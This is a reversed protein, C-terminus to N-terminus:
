VRPYVGAHWQDPLFFTTLRNAADILWALAIDPDQDDPATVVIGRRPHDGLVRWGDPLLLGDERLRAVARHGGGHQLGVSLPEATGNRKRIGPVWSAFPVAPGRTTFLRTLSASPVPIDEPDVDPQLNIWGDRDRLQQRMVKIVAGRDHRDFAIMEPAPRAAPVLPLRGARGLM